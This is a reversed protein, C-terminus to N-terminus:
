GRYSCIEVCDTLESATNIRTICDILLKFRMQISFELKGQPMFLIQLSDVWSSDSLVAPSFLSLSHMENEPAELTCTCVCSLSFLLIFSIEGLFLCPSCPWCTIVESLTKSGGRLKLEILGACSGCLARFAWSSFHVWFQSPPCTFLAIRHQTSKRISL